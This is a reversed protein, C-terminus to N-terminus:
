QYSVLTFGLEPEEQKERNLYIIFLGAVIGALHSQPLVYFTSGVAFLSAGTLLEWFVKGTSGIITLWGYVQHSKHKSRIFQFCVLTLLTFAAGSFGCYSFTIPCFIHVTLGVFFPAILLTQWFMKENFDILIIGIFILALMNWLLHNNDWHCFSSTFSRILTDSFGDVRQYSMKGRFLLDVVSITFTLLFVKITKDKM